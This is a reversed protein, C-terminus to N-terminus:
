RCRIRLKISGCKRAWKGAEGLLPLYSRAVPTPTFTPTPMPSPTPTATPSPTATPTPTVPVSGEIRYIGGRFDVVYVEGDEGEGFSSVNLETDLFQTWEWRGDQLRLGWIRGSCFDSFFYTGHIDAFRRGRYVYGGTIACGNERIKYEVVPMTLGTMDCGEPPEFCHFGEMIDWGFNQGGPDPALVVNVEEWNDQGVDAIYLDGTQRDFSFRWPNRLGYSWIEPPVGEEGVFPNDPPIAYPDGNDVDIRLMKGLLVRLNQANGWPDGASGGDGMGIYLYGDPGFQLQGGNHNAAPQEIYLLIRESNPDAKNPDDSVRYEAVVTNGRQDTYNVFFRGNTEYDPHFAVSLLGRELERSRVKNTIDLFPEPLVRGQDIIWIRGEKEVVFLRGSGDGAHTVYLPQRFGDAVPALRITTWPAVPTAPPPTINPPNPQTATGEPPSSRPWALVAIAVLLAVGLLALLNFWRTM